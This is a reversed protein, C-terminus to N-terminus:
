IVSFWTVSNEHASAVRLLWRLPNHNSSKRETQREKSSCQKRNYPVHKETRQRRNGGRSSELPYVCKWELREIQSGTQWLSLSHVAKTGHTGFLCYSQNQWHQIIIVLILLNAESISPVSAPGKQQAAMCTALDIFKTNLVIAREKWMCTLM